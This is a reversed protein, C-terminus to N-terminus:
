STPMESWCHDARCWYERVLPLVYRRAGDRMEARCEMGSVAMGSCSPCRVGALEALPLRKWSEFRSLAIAAPEQAQDVPVAPSQPRDPLYLSWWVMGAVVAMLVLISLAATM